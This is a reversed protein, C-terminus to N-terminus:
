ISFGQNVLHANPIASFLGCGSKQLHSSKYHIARGKHYRGIVQLVFKPKSLNQKNQSVFRAFYIIGFITLFFLHKAYRM